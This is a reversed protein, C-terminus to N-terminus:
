IFWSGDQNPNLTVSGNAFNIVYSSLGLITEGSAPVITIPNNGADGNGDVIKIPRLRGVASLLNIQTASGPSKKVFIIDDAALMDYSSGSEVDTINLANEGPAEALVVVNRWERAYADKTATIKYKGEAVYCLVHAGDAWVFPNGLSTNGDPDAYVGPLVGNVESRVELSVNSLANGSGDLLALNIAALAM